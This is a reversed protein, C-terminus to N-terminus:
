CVYYFKIQVQTCVTKNFSGIKYLWILCINYIIKCLHLELLGIIQFYVDGKRYM